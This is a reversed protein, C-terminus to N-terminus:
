VWANPMVANLAPANPMAAAAAQVGPNQALVNLAAVLANGFNNIMDIVSAANDAINALSRGITLGQLYEAQARGAYSGLSPHADVWERTTGACNLIGVCVAVTPNLADMASRMDSRTANNAYADDKIIFLAATVLDTIAPGGTFKVSITMAAAGIAELGLIFESIGVMGFPHRDVCAEGLSVLEHLTTNAALAAGNFVTGAPVAIPQTGVLGDALENIAAHTM